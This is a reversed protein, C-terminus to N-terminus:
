GRGGGEGEPPPLRIILLVRDFPPLFDRFFMMLLSKLAVMRDPHPKGLLARLTPDGETTGPSPAPTCIPIPFAM